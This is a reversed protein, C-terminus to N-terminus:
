AQANFAADAAAIALWIVRFEYCSLFFFQMFNGNFEITIITSKTNQQAKRNIHSKKIPWFGTVRLANRTTTAQFKAHFPYHSSM